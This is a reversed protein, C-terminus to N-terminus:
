ICLPIRQHLQKFDVERYERLTYRGWLQSLRLASHAHQYAQSKYGRLHSCEHIHRHLLYCIYTTSDIAFEEPSLACLAYIYQEVTNSSRTYHNYFQQYTTTAYNSIHRHNPNSHVLQLPFIAQLLYIIRLKAM